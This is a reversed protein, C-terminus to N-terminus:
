HNNLHHWLAKRITDFWQDKETVFIMEGILQEDGTVAPQMGVCSIAFKGNDDYLLNPAQGFKTLTEIIFDVPYHEYNQILEQTIAMEIACATDPDETERRILLDTIENQTM